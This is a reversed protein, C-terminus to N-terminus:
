ELSGLGGHAVEQVVHIVFTGLCQLCGLMQVNALLVLDDLVEILRLQKAKLFALRVIPANNSLVQALVKAASCNERTRVKFLHLIDVVVKGELGDLVEDNHTSLLVEGKIM